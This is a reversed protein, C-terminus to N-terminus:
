ALLVGYHSDVGDVRCDQRLADGFRLAELVEIMQDYEENPIPFPITAQGYEPHQTSSLVAKIVYASM